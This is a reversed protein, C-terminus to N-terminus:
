KILFRIRKSFIGRFMYLMIFYIAIIGLASIASLLESSGIYNLLALSGVILFTPIVYAFLVSIFANKESAIVTVKEGPKVSKQPKLIEIEKLSSGSINCMNKAHCGACASHNEITVIVRDEEIRNVIGEHEIYSM